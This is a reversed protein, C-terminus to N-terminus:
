RRIGGGRAIILYTRSLHEALSQRKLDVGAWLYGVTLLALGVLGFLPHLLAQVPSLGEGGRDILRLGLLRQGATRGWLLYAMLRYSLHLTLLMALPGFFRGRQRMAIEVAYDIWDYLPPPLTPTSWVGLWLALWLLGLILSLDVLDALGRRWFPAAM